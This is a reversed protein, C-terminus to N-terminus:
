AAIGLERFTTAARADLAAAEATDVPRGRRRLAGALAREGRAVAPRAGMRGDIAIGHRLDEIAEDYRELTLALMGLPRAVADNSGDPVGIAVLDRYPALLAYLTAARDPDGLLACTEGALAMGFLWDEDRPFIAFDEAALEDLLERGRAVDGTAVYLYALASRLLDYTPFERVGAALSPELEHLRGQLRRLTFLHMHHSILANWTQAGRGLELTEAALTEGEALRGQMLASITRFCGVIWRQAPQRMQEAIAHIEELEVAVGSADAIEWRSPLSHERVAFAREADGLADNLGRMEDCIAIREDANGPAWLALLHGEMAYGLTAPDDLRRAIAVAEEGRALAEDRGARRDGIPRGSGPRLAGALRALVRARLPDDREGLAMIADDLLPVLHADATGRAWLFRGGYTIAARALHEPLDAKRALDAAELFRQKAASGDGGRAIAEGLAVLVDCRLEADASPGLTRLALEFLRVAEEFAVLRAAREGARLAQRVARDVDGGAAAALCFHHALEASHSDVDPAYVVELAEGAATHLRCRDAARLLDYAVDRILAHSFRVHRPDGPVPAAVHREAAEEIADLLEDRSAGSVLELADVRLERGLV